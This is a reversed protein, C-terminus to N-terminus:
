MIRKAPLIIPAAINLPDFVSSITSLVGRMTDPKNRDSVKFGFTDGEINWRMGLARDVPLDDLDLNLAPMARKESPIKALVQRNNSMFKTLNFGGKACIETLQEALRTAASAIPVSKLVDDVYFNHRVTEVTVPDFDKENDDATKKLMSNASCPSDAAGFIHVTMVYEDPPEETNEGWWLFRLSDQDKDRVRMSEIDAVAAVIDERFRMLVGALSNTSDPGQLLNKNLSTGHHEAAADFVIRVKGPKNENTVAFHPLYWTRPGVKALKKLRCSALTDKSETSGSNVFCPDNKIAAQRKVFAALDSLKPAAGSERINYSTDGWKNILYNPLRSIIQKLNTTASVESEYAGLLKRSASELQEAFNRLGTYDTNQLKPGRTLNEICAAAVTGPQGYRQELIKMTDEYSCGSIREAVEYAEGSLFKPLFESKQTDSLIGDELNDKLRNRFTPYHAPNGTFKIPQMAQLMTLKMMVAQNRLVSSYTMQESQHATHKKANLKDADQKEIKLGATETDATERKVDIQPKNETILEGPTESPPQLEAAGHNLLRNDVWAKVKEQETTASTVFASVRKGKYGKDYSTSNVTTLKSLNELKPINANSTASTVFASVSKGKYGKDYSTSNVTTLKSLNELKPINANSTASTVFASVSKGKYGKDYSTSNVTTLKSLNELKPINANSTASTVFASVSQGKYAKDYSTSNVTTLKSLNELEPINAKDSSERVFDAFEFFPPYDMEASSTRWKTIIDRWKGELHYPLKDVLKANENAFDLIALSAIIKRAAVIKDLFDSFERLGSADRPGVKPWKELKSLFAASVVNSNGYREQLVSKAKVYADKTGILLYHEVVQKPSGLVYQNLLNLKTDADMERSDILAEFASNWEPYELPDGSFVHIKVTPLHFIHNSPKSEKNQ